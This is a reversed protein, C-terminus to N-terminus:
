RILMSSDGYSLFRFDNELAYSYIRKWDEGVFASVLLLLTSKPQHFNTILTNVIKFDYGPVICIQTAAEFFDKENGKMWNLLSNISEDVSIRSPLNYPEWQSVHLSNALDIGMNVKVGLWYISELSRLTTTGVSCIKGKKRLISQLLEKTVYFHETHMEHEVITEAKVPKFTGAGVHLTVSATEIDNQKIKQLLEPTFHLGATPAAVSGEPQAYVTQYRSKDVAEDKRNLYPPIPVKGCIEVVRAFSLNENWSFEVEVGEGNIGAKEANLIASTGDIELRLIDGKWKKLNGVICKWKCNSTSAFSQAYDVPNIPELLFVEISAGTERKFNLRAQVVKTNNFVILSDTPILDSVNRFTHETITKNKYVLLKSIDRQELPYKAIREDPLSYNYDSIYVKPFNLVIIDNLHGIRNAYM